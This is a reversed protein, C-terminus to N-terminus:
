RFMAKISGWTHRVGSVNPTVMVIQSFAVVKSSQSEVIGLRYYFTYGIPKYVSRDVYQYTKPNEPSAQERSRPVFDVPSFNVGNLSRQIQYGKINSEHIVKWSLYVKNFGPESKFEIIVADAWLSVGILVLLVSAVSIFNIKKM